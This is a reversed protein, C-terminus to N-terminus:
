TKVSGGLSFEFSPNTGSVLWSARIYRFILSTITTWYTGTATIGTHSDLVKYKGSIPDRGEIYVDMSPNTGSVNTVDLCIEAGYYDAVDIDGSNGDATEAGSAHITIDAQKHSSVRRPQESSVAQESAPDIRRGRTDSLGPM